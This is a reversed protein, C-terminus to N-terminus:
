SHVRLFGVACDSVWWVRMGVFGTISRDSIPTYKRNATENLHVMKLGFGGTVARQDARCKVLFHDRRTSEKLFLASLINWIPGVFTQDKGERQTVVLCLFTSSGLFKGDQKKGETWKRQLWVYYLPLSDKHPIEYLKHNQSISIHQFSIVNV